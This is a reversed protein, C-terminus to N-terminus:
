RMIQEKNARFLIKGSLGKFHKRTYIRPIYSEDHESVWGIM